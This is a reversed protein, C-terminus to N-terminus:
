LMTDGHRARYWAILRANFYRRWFYSRLVSIITFQVTIFPAIWWASYGGFLDLQPVVGIQWYVTSIIAGSGINCAVEFKSEAKSQM